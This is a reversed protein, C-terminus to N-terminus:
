VFSCVSEVSVVIGDFKFALAFPAKVIAEPMVSVTLPFKVIM